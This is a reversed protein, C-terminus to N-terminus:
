RSREQPGAKPFLYRSIVYLIGISQVVVSSFYGIMVSADIHHWQSAVYTIMFITAVLVLAGVTRLTFKVIEERYKRAAALERVREEDIRDNVSKDPTNPTPTNALEDASATQWHRDDEGPDGPSVLTM